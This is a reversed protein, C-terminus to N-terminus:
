SLCLAFSKFLSAGVAGSVLLLPSMHATETGTAWPIAVYQPQEKGKRVSKPAM